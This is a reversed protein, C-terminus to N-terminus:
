SKVKYRIPIERKIAEGKHYEFTFRFPKSEISKGENYFLRLVATGSIGTYIKQTGASYAELHGNPMTRSLVIGLLFRDPSGPKVEFPMKIELRRDTPSITTSYLATALVINQNGSPLNLGASAPSLDRTHLEPEGVMQLEAKSIVASEGGANRVLVDIGSDIYVEGDSNKGVPTRWPFIQSVDEISIHAALPKRALTEVEIVFKQAKDVSAQYNNEAERREEVPANRFIAIARTKCANQILTNLIEWQVSYNDLEQQLKRGQEISLTVGAKSLGSRRADLAISARKALGVLPTNSCHESVFRIEAAQRREEPSKCGINGLSLLTGVAIILFFKISRSCVM